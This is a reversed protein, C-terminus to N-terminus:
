DEHSCVCNHPPRCCQKCFYDPCKDKTNEGCECLREKPIDSIVYNDPMDHILCRKPAGCTCDLEDDVIMSVSSEKDKYNTFEDNFTGTITLLKKAM